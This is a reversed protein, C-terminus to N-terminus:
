PVLAAELAQALEERPVIGLKVASVQGDPAVVVISPHGRLGYTAFAAEGQGGDLADLRIFDVRVGYQEELGDVIPRM